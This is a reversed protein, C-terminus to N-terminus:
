KKDVEAFFVIIFLIVVVVGGFIYPAYIINM